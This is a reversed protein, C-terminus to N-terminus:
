QWACVQACGGGLGVSGHLRYREELGFIKGLEERVQGPALGQGLEGVAFYAVKQVADRGRELRVCAMARGHICLYGDVLLLLQQVLQKLALHRTGPGGPEELYVHQPICARVGVACSCM